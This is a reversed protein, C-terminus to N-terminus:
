GCCGGRKLAFRMGLRTSLADNTAQCVTMLAQQAEVYEVIVPNGYVAQRLRELETRDEEPVADLMLLVELDKEKAQLGDISQRASTDRQLAEGAQEFRHFEDTETLAVALGHLATRIRPSITDTTQVPTNTM